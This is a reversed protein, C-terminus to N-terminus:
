LVTQSSDKNKVARFYALNFWTKKAKTNSFARPIYSEMGSIIVETIREACLSPDRVHFCYDDWPVFHLYILLYNTIVSYIVGCLATLYIILNFLLLLKRIFSNFAVYFRLM